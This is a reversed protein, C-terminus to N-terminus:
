TGPFGNWSQGGNGNCGGSPAVMYAPENSGKNSSLCAGSGPYDAYALYEGASILSTYWLQALRGSDCAALKITSSDGGGAPGSYEACESTGDLRVLEYGTPVGDLDECWVYNQNPPSDSVYLQSGATTGDSYLIGFENTPEFGNCAEPMTARAAAPHTVAAAAPASITALGVLPSVALVGAVVFAFRKMRYRKAFGIATLRATAVAVAIRKTM